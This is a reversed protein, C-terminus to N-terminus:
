RALWLALAGFMTWVSAFGMLLKRSLWARDPIRALQGVIFQLESEIVAFDERAQDAQRLTPQREPDDALPGVNM